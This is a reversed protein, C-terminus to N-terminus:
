DDLKSFRHMCADFPLHYPGVKCGLLSLAREADPGIVDVRDGVFRIVARAGTVPILKAMREGEPLKWVVLARGDTTIFRSGDESLWGQGPPRIGVTRTPAELRGEKGASDIAWLAMSEDPCSWGAIWRANRAQIRCATRLLAPATRPERWSWHLTGEAKRPGLCSAMLLTGGVEYVRGRPECGDRGALTVVNGTALDEIRPPAGQRLLARGDPSLTCQGSDCTAISRLDDLRLVEVKGPNREVMMSFTGLEESYLAGGVHTGLQWAGRNRLLTTESRTVM